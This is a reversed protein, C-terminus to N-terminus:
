QGKGFGTTSIFLFVGEEIEIVQINELTHVKEFLWHIGGAPVKGSLGRLAVMVVAVAMGIGITFAHPLSIFPEAFHRSLAEAKTQRRGVAM